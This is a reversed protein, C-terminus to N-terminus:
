AAKPMGAAMPMGGSPQGQPPGGAGGAGQAMQQKAQAIQQAQQTNQMAMREIGRREVNPNSDGPTLKSVKTLIELVGKGLESQYGVLNLIETLQKGVLGLRQIAAAEYGKNPSAQSVPSAGFPPQSPQQAGPAPALEPM